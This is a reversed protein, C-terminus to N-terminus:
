NRKTELYQILDQAYYKHAEIGPHVGDSAYWANEKVVTQLALPYINEIQKNLHDLKSFQKFPIAFTFLYQQNRSKLFEQLTIIKILNSECQSWNDTGAYYGDFVMDRPGYDASFLWQGNKKYDIRNFPSWMVIVLDYENRCLEDVASEQIYTNGAGIRSLNTLDAKYYDALLEPWSGIGESFSAGSVLIKM